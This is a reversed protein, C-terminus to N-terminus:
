IKRNLNSNLTNSKLTVMCRWLMEQDEVQADVTRELDDVKEGIETLEKEVERVCSKLDAKLSTIEVLMEQLFHNMYDQAILTSPGTAELTQQPTTMQEMVAGVPKTWLSTVSTEKPTKTHPM